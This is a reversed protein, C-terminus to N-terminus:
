SNRSSTGWSSGISCLTNCAQWQQGKALSTCGVASQFWRENVLLVPLLDPVRLIRAIATIM